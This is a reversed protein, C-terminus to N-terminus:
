FYTAIEDAILWGKPSLRLHTASLEILQENLLHKVPKEFEILFDSGFRQYYERLAMGDKLRLNLFLYEFKLDKESLRERFNEPLVGNRLQKLYIALSRPNAFRENCHFSHASPGLGLYPQHRWYALNHRCIYDEGSAFNSIEYQMYGAKALIDAAMEYYGAEEDEGIPKLEGRQMRKFFVTGPEFILTYCAIHEPQLKRACNLSNLFSETTIGPFATMLDININGFGAKRANEMNEYVDEVTHIRGLFNLEDPNFSQVGMSLRNLGLARYTALKEFSLTGPNSEISCEADPHISFHDHLHQWIRKLQAPSLLSPTGGGLFVTTFTVEAFQPSRLEIERLLATTFAEIHELQTLSYFDCYECKQECFPVHVYLGAGQPVAGATISSQIKKTAALSM